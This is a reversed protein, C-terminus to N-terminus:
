RGATVAFRQRTGNSLVKVVARLQLGAPVQIEFGGPHPTAWVAGGGSLRAIVARVNCGAVGHLGGSVVSYRIENPPVKGMCAASATQVSDLGAHVSLYLAIAGALLGGVALMRSM